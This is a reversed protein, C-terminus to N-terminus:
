IQRDMLRYTVTPQLGRATCSTVRSLYDGAGTGVVYLKVGMTYMRVSQLGNLTSGSDMIRFAESLSDHEGMWHSYQFMVQYSEHNKAM